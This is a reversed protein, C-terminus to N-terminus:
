QDKEHDGLLAENSSTPQQTLDQLEVECSYFSSCIPQDSTNSSNSSMSPSRIEPRVFLEALSRPLSAHTEQSRVSSQSREFSKLSSRDVNNQAIERLRALDVDGTQSVMLSFKSKPNELLALPTDYEVVRGHDMVLIKDMKVILRFRNALIIVTSEQFNETIVQRILDDTETDM